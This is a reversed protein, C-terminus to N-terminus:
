SVDEGPAGPAGAPGPDGTSGQPTFLSSVQPACPPPHTVQPGPRGNDGVTGQDGPAGQLAIYATISLPLLLHNHVHINKFFCATDTDRDCVRDCVCVCVCM